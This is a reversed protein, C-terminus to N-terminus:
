RHPYHFVLVKGVPLQTLSAIPQVPPKGQRGRFWNQVAIWFQGVTFGLSTLVMFKTFDRRAVYHDQPRDIPFDRRWAPQASEPQGDPAVTGQDADRESM